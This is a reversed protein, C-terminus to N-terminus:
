RARDPRGAMARIALDRAAAAELFAAASWTLDLCSVPQGTVRDFQEPLPGAPNPAVQQILAMWGEAKAFVAPDATEAAIRYYMEAFGLTTPYWPNGNFYADEVWRGIAPVDRGHNIPYLRAFDRELAAATALSRPGTLAFPGDSRRAHLLALCTASDLRGEPAEVSERWGGSAGDPAQDMLRAIREVADRMGGGPDDLFRSGRDLADWQVILTFTTRRPPAEEWPGICPRGAVRLVHALDREILANAQLSALEPLDDLLTMLASARLAHGDDQPRSWQELDPSGDAAVRPEQQWAAGHLAALEADPRLYNEHSPLTSARLPNAAPGQRTPDSISLSFAIFDTIFSLWFPRSEPDTAMALPVARLAIASDRIWHHFYDPEPDWNAIRPSALVSGKAPRVTWGFGARHRTLHTASCANRMAKASGLRQAAIWDPDLM